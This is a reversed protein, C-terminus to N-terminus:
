PHLDFRVSIKRQAIFVKLLVEGRSRFLIRYPPSSDLLPPLVVWNQNWIQLSLLWQSHGVQIPRMHRHVDNSVEKVLEDAVESYTTRGKREVTLLVSM